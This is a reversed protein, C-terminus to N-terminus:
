AMCGLVQGRFGSGRREEGWVRIGVGEFKSAALLNSGQVGLCYVKGRIEVGAGQKQLGKFWLFV